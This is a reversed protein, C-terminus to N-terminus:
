LQAGLAMAFRGIEPEFQEYEDMYKLHNFTGDAGGQNAFYEPSQEVDKILEAARDGAKAILAAKASAYEQEDRVSYNM